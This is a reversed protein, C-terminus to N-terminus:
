DANFFLFFLSNITISDFVYISHNSIKKRQKQKVINKLTYDIYLSYYEKKMDNKLELKKEKKKKNM